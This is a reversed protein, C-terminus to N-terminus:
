RLMGPRDPWSMRPGTAAMDFGGEALAAEFAEAGDGDAVEM